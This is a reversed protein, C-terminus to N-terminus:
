LAPQLVIIQTEEPIKGAKFEIESKTSRTVNKKDKLFDDVLAVPFTCKQNKFHMPIIVKPKISNAIATAVGADITYFGGVPILLVDVKGIKEVEQPMLKYGQDGMHCVKVGDVDMCTIMNPGRQTGKNEDHFTSLGSLKIGKIEIAGPGKYVQPKGAVTGVNNHDFHEHSVTVVDAAEKIEGYHLNGGTTYPDTIIRTGKESTILFSSHGLWKIKM